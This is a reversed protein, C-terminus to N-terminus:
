APRGLIPYQPDSFGPTAPHGSAVLASVASEDAGNWPRQSGSVYAQWQALTRPGALVSTILPNAMVWGLALTAADTGRAKALDALNRALAIAEPKFSTQPLRRDG